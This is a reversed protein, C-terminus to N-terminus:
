AESLEGVEIQLEEWKKEIRNMFLLLLVYM